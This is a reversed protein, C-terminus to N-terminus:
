AFLAATENLVPRVFECGLEYGDERRRLNKVRVSIWPVAATAKSTRLYLITGEPIGEKMRLRVGGRSGNVIWAGYPEELACDDPLLLIRIQRQFRPWARRDVADLLRDDSPLPTPQM